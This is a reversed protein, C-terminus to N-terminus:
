WIRRGVAIAAGLQIKKLKNGMKTWTEVRRGSWAYRGEGGRNVNLAARSKQLLSGGRSPMKGGQSSKRNEIRGDLNARRGGGKRTAIKPHRKKQGEM